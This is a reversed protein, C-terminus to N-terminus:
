ERLEFYCLRSAVTKESESIQEQYVEQLVSVCNVGSIEAGHQFTQSFDDHSFSGIKKKAITQNVETIIDLQVRCPLSM